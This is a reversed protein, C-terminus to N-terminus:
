RRGPTFAVGLGGGEIDGINAGFRVSVGPVFSLDVGLGLTANVGDDRSGFTPIIMPHVFPTVRFSAGDPRITRGVTFGIPLLGVNRGEGIRGGVGVTLAADFPFASGGRVLPLRVDTGVLLATRDPRSDRAIGARLGWDYSAGTPAWRMMAELAFDQELSTNSFFLGFENRTATSTPPLFSPTGSAQALAVGAPLGYLFLAACRLIVGMKHKRM